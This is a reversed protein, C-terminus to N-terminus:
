EEGGAPREFGISGDRGFDVRLRACVVRELVLARLDDPELGRVAVGADEVSLDLLAAWLVAADAFADFAAGEVNPRFPDDPMRDDTM